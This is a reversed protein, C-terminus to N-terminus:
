MLVAVSLQLDEPKIGVCNMKIRQSYIDFKIEEQFGTHVVTFSFCLFFVILVLHLSNSLGVIFIIMKSLKEMLFAQWVM